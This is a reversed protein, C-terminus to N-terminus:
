RVHKFTCAPVSMVLVGGFERSVGNSRLFAAAIPSRLHTRNSLLPAVDMMCTHQVRSPWCSLASWALTGHANAASSQKSAREITLKCCNICSPM